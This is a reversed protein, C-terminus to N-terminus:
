IKNYMLYPSQNFLAKSDNRDFLPIVTSVRLSAAILSARVSLIFLFFTLAM